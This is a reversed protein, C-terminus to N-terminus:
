NHDGHEVLAKQIQQLGDLATCALEHTLRHSQFRHANPLYELLLACRSYTLSDESSSSAADSGFQDDDLVWNWSKEVSPPRFDVDLELMRKDRENNWNYSTPAAREPPLRKPLRSANGDERLEVTFTDEPGFCTPEEVGMFAEPTVKRWGYCHLICSQVNFSRLHAYTAKEAKSLPARKHIKLVTLPHNPLEVLALDSGNSRYLWRVFRFNLKDDLEPFPKSGAPVRSPFEGIDLECFFKAEDKQCWELRQLLTTTPITYQRAQVTILM